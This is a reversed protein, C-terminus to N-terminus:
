EGFYAGEPEVRDEPWTAMSKYRHWSSWPWDERAIVHGHKV